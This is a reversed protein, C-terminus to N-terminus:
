VADPKARQTGWGWLGAWEGASVAGCRAACLSVAVAREGCVRLDAADAGGAAGARLLPLVAGVSLDPRSHRPVREVREGKFIFCIGDVDAVLAHGGLTQRFALLGIRAYTEVPNWWSGCCATALRGRGSASGRASRGPRRSWGSPRSGLDAGSRGCSGTSTISRLSRITPWWCGGSPRRPGWRSRRCAGRRLTLRSVIRIFEMRGCIPGAIGTPRCGWRSGWGCMTGLRFQGAIRLGERLTLVEGFASLTPSGPEASLYLYGWDIQVEDGSRGLPRQEAAGVFLAEVNGARHRGWIVQREPTGIVWNTSWDLYAEVRHAKGDISRVAIDVYSVPRAMLELDEPLTPTTFTLTLEIGAQEFAYITELAAVERRVQRMAPIDKGSRTTLGMFRYAVGDIRVMGCMSQNLGTWHTPWSDTLRDTISWVSMFPDHVILADPARGTTANTM